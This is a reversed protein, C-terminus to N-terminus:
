LRAVKGEHVVVVEGDTGTVEEEVIAIRDAGRTGKIASSSGSRIDGHEEDRTAGAGPVLEGDDTVTLAADNDVIQVDGLVVRLAIKEALFEEM